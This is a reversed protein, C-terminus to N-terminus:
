NFIIDFYLLFIYKAIDIFEMISKLLVYKDEFYIMFKVHAQKKIFVDMINKKPFLYQIKGNPDRFIKKISIISYNGNLLSQKDICSYIDHDYKLEPAVFFFIADTEYLNEMISNQLCLVPINNHKFIDFEKVYYLCNKFFQKLIHKEDITLFKIIHNSVNIQLDEM